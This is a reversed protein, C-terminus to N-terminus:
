KTEEKPKEEAAKKEPEPKELDIKADKIAKNLKKLIEATEDELKIVGVQSGLKDRLKQSKLGAIFRNKAPAKSNITAELEKIKAENKGYDQNLERGVNNRMAELIPKNEAAIQDAIAKLERDKEPGKEMNNAKEAREAYKEKIRRREDKTRMLAQADLNKNINELTKMQDYEKKGGIENARETATTEDHKEREKTRNTLWDLDVGTEKKINDTLYKRSNKALFGLAGDKKATEEFIKGNLINGANKMRLGAFTQAQGLAGKVRGTAGMQMAAGRSIMSASLKGAVGGAAGIAATTAMTALKMAYEGLKGSMKKTMKVATILALIIFIYGLVPKVDLQNDALGAVADTWVSFGVLLGISTILKSIILLFLFFLPAMFTLDLLKKRWEKSYENLQPIIDQLYGIPSTVLLFILMFARGIFLIAAYLFAWALFIMALIQSLLILITSIQGTIEINKLTMLSGLSLSQVVVSVFMHFTGGTANYITIALINGADIIIKTFFLSFNVLLASIIINAVTTKGKSGSQGVIIKIAEYLMLFIFLINIFNRFIAWITEIGVANVMSAFNEVSFFLASTFLGASTALIVSMLIAISYLTAYWSLFTTAAVVAGAGNMVSLVTKLPGSWDLSWYGHMKNNDIYDKTAKDGCTKREEATTLKACADMSAHYADYVSTPVSTGTIVIPAGGTVAGSGGGVSSGSGGTGATGSTTDYSSFGLAARNYASYEQITNGPETIAQNYEARSICVSEKTSSDYYYQTGSPCSTAYVKGVGVNVGRSNKSFDFNVAGFLFIALLISIIIKSSIKKM